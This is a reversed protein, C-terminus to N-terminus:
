VPCTDMLRLHGDAMAERPRSRLAEEVLRDVTAQIDALSVVEAPEEQPDGVVQPGTGEPETVTLVEGPLPWSFLGAAGVEPPLGHAPERAPELRPGLM